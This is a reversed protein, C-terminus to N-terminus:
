GEPHLGESVGREHVVKPFICKLEYNKFLHLYVTLGMPQSHLPSICMIIAVCGYVLANTLNTKQPQQRQTYVEPAPPDPLAPAAGLDLSPVPLSLVM